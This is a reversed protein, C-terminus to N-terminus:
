IFMWLIHINDLSRDWFSTADKVFGTGKMVFGDWSQHLLYLTAASNLNVGAEGAPQNM